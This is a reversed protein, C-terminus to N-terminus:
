IRMKQKKGVTTLARFVNELCPRNKLHQSTIFNTKGHPKLNLQNFLPRDEYHICVLLQNLKQKTNSKEPLQELLVRRELLYPVLRHCKHNLMWLHWFCDIVANLDLESSEIFELIRSVIIDFDYAQLFICNLNSMGWLFRVLDKSRLKKSGSDQSSYNKIEEMCKSTIFELLKEDYYLNDAYFALLHCYTQFTYFEFSKNFFIACSITALLDEDCYRNLRLCKILTIFLAPDRLLMLNDNLYCKIKHLIKKNNMKTSTKFTSNAIICLEESSLGKIDEDKLKSLTKRLIQQSKSNKKMLAVYFLFKMYDKGKLNELDSFLKDIARPYFKLETVRHPLLEMYADLFSLIQKTDLDGQRSCCEEDVLKLIKHFEKNSKILSENELSSIFSILNANSIKSQYLDQNRIVKLLEDAKFTDSNHTSETSEPKLYIMLRGTLTNSDLNVIKDNAIFRAFNRVNSISPYSKVISSFIKLTRVRM